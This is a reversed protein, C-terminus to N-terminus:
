QSTAQVANAGEDTAVDKEGLKLLQIFDPGNAIVSDITPAKKRKKDEMEDQEEIPNGGHYFGFL